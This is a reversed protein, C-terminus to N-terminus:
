QSIDLVLTGKMLRCHRIIRSHIQSRRSKAGCNTMRHRVLASMRSHISRHLARNPISALKESSQLYRVDGTRDYLTAQYTGWPLTVQPLEDAYAIALQLISGFLLLLYM